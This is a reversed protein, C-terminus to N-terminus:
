AGDSQMLVRVPAYSKRHIPSPGHAKLAAQHQPTGYGKHESFGYEPYQAAIEAMYADRWVKALISAAAISLSYRDGGVICIQPVDRREPWLMYDLFLCDPQIGSNQQAQDLAMQMALKIAPIIGLDDIQQASAYGVGWALATTKITEVLAERQRASMQKSDRVGKLVTPLDRRDLPLGVVGASVPGAWPGRGAEDIGFIHQCGHTYFNREHGLSATTRQRKMKAQM